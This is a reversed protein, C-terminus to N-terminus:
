EQHRKDATNRLYFAVSFVGFGVLIADLPVLYKWMGPDRVVTDIQVAGLCCAAVLGHWYRLARPLLRYGDDAVVADYVAIFLCLMLLWTLSQMRFLTDKQYGVIETAAYALAGSGMALFYTGVDKAGIKHRTDANFLRLELSIMWLPDLNGTTAKIAVASLAALVYSLAFALVEQGPSNDHPHGFAVWAAVAMVVTSSVAAHSYVLLLLSVAYFPVRVILDISM